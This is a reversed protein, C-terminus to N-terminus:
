AFRSRAASSFRWTMAGPQSWGVMLNLVTPQGVLVRSTKAQDQGPRQSQAHRFSSLGLGCASRPLASPRIRQGHCDGQGLFDIHDQASMEHAYVDPATRTAKLYPPDCYILVDSADHDRILPIAGSCRFAVRQIRRRVDPLSDIFTEWSNVGEPIPGGPRTKGRTRDSWSFVKGIGGRSMRNRVVFAWARVLPDPNDTYEISKDFFDRDYPTVELRWALLPDDRLVTWFNVLNDNVDGAVEVDAPLRNLLVSGGGLFPELYVRHGPMVSIIRRALYSKGGHTKVPPRLKRPAVLSPM